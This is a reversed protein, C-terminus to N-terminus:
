QLVFLLAPGCPVMCLCGSCCLGGSQLCGHENRAHLLGLVVCSMILGCVVTLNCCLNALKGAWSASWGLARTIGMCGHYGEGARTESQPREGASCRHSSPSFPMTKATVAFVAFYLYSLLGAEMGEVRVLRLSSSNGHM